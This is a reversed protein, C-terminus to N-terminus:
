ASVKTASIAGPGLLITLSRRVQSKTDRDEAAVFAAYGTRRAMSETMVEAAINGPLYGVQQSADELWVAIANHDQPNTPEPQLLVRRGVDLGPSILGSYSMVGVVESLRCDQSSLSEPLEGEDIWNGGEGDFRLARSEIEADLGGWWEPLTARIEIGGARVIFVERDPRHKPQTMHGAYEAVGSRGSSESFRPCWPSSPRCAMEPPETRSIDCGLEYNLTTWAAIRDPSDLLARTEAVASETVFGDM